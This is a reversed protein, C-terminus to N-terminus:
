TDKRKVYVWPGALIMVVAVVGWFIIIGTHGTKITVHTPNGNKKTFDNLQKKTYTFKYSQRKGNGSVMFKYNGPILKAGDLLPVSLQTKTYPTLVVKNKALKGKAIMRGEPNLVQYSGATAYTVLPNNNLLDYSLLAADKASTFKFNAYTPNKRNTLDGMNLRIVVVKQYVKVVNVVQRNVKKGITQAFNIGGLLEGRLNHNVNIVVRIKRRQKPQLKLTGNKFQGGIPTIKVYKPIAYNKNLLNKTSKVYTIGSSTSIGTSPFVAVDMKKNSTNNVTVEFAYKHNVKPSFRIDISSTSLEGAQVTVKLASGNQQAAHVALGALEMGLLSVLLILCVRIFSHTKAKSITKM